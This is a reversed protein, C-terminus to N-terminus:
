FRRTDTTCISSGNTLKVEIDPRPASRVQFLNPLRMQTLSM